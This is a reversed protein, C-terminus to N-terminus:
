FNYEYNENDNEEATMKIKVDRYEDYLRPNFEDYMEPFMRYKLHIYIDQSGKQWSAQTMPVFRAEFKMINRKKGFAREYWEKEDESSHKSRDKLHIIVHDNDALEGEVSSIRARCCERRNVLLLSLM